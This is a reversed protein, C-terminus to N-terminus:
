DPKANTSVLYYAGTSYNASGDNFFINEGNYPNPFTYGGAQLGFWAYATYDGNPESHTVDRVWWRGGDNVRHATAGSGYDPHRFITSAYNGGGSTKHVGYVIQFYSAYSGSLPSRGTANRVFNSMARWNDPSRPYVIDLGMSTGSHSQNAYTVSTGNGQFAYLDYGGLEIDVWMKVPSPMSPSQIWYYDNPLTPDYQYLDYGSEAPNNESGYPALVVAGWESGTWVRLEEKDTNFYTDGIAPNSPDSSLADIGGGNEAIQTDVYSTSALGSTAISIASNMATTTVKDSVASALEADTAFPTLDISQAQSKWRKGDFVYTDGNYSYTQGNSPSSPFTLAM